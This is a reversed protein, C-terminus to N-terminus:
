ASVSGASEEAVYGLERGLKGYTLGATLDYTAHLVMGVYLTGSLWYLGQFGM